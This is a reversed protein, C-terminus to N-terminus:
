RSFRQPITYVDVLDDEFVTLSDQRFKKFDEADPHSAFPVWFHRRSSNRWVLAYAIRGAVGDNKLPDLLHKTFFYTPRDSALGSGPGFSSQCQM